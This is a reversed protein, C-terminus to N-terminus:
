ALSGLDNEVSPSSVLQSGREDLGSKTLFYRLDTQREDFIRVTTRPYDLAAHVSDECAEKEEETANLLTNFTDVL